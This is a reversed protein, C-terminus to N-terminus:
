PRVWQEQQAPNDFTINNPFIVEQDKRAVWPIVLTVQVMANRIALHALTVIVTLQSSAWFEALDWM